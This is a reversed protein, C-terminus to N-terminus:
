KKEQEAEEAVDCFKSPGKDICAYGPRGCDATSKCAKYCKKEDSCVAGSGCDASTECKKLCQGGPDDKECFLGTLCSADSTCGGGIPNKTEAVQPSEASRTTNGGCAAFLMTGLLCAMRTFKTM